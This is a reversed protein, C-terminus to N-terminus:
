SGKSLFELTVSTSAVDRNVFDPSDVFQTWSAAGTVLRATTWAIVDCNSGQKYESWKNVFGITWQGANPDSTKRCQFLIFKNAADLWVTSGEFLAVDKQFQTNLAFYLFGEMTLFESM